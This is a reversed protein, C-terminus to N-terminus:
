RVLPFGAIVAVTMVVTLATFHWYLAVNHIDIDYRATMRGALRRAVCYLQMVVALGLHLVSWWVLLWVTAAYASTSPDLAARHPGLLLAAGGLATMVVAGAMAAHFLLARDSRNFRRALMTLGWAVVVAVASAVPWHPPPGPFPTPPFEASRTWFFFYGFVISVFAAFVGLMTIFMAWWGVSDRGSLYLPLRLGLGVDKADKEPIEATGTWLWALIAALGFLGSIGALVYWKYTAFIFVGGVFVAAVPTIFTPGAIRMCQIPTADITSTVLM